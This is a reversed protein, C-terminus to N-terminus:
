AREHTRRRNSLRPLEISLHAPQMMLNEFQDVLTLVGTQRLCKPALLSDPQSM